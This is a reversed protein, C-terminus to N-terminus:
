EMTLITQDVEVSKGVEADVTKITCDREARLINEMKMAEIVALEEGARVSQGAEVAISVLLGPMPSLLSNSRDFTKEKLMLKQLRAASPSLVLVKLGSGNYILSYTNNSGVEVKVSIKAGNYKTRFIRDGFQWGSIISFKQKNLAIVLGSDKNISGLIKARYRKRKTIISWDNDIATKINDVQGSITSFREIVRRHLFCAIVALLKKDKNIVDFPNHGEPYEEAIFNTSIRGRIFRQHCFVSSLFNINHSVGKVYFENLAEGMKSIAQKRNTGYACLKSIMPDYFMSIESGEEVGTDVRINKKSSDIEAPDKYESLRGISPLFNRSPDEAYVRSEMAWGKLRVSRQKFGLKRGAAVLIMQEVLDIGTVLETVPHEVQLRTNM